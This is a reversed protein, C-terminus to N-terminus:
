TSSKTVFDCDLPKCNGSDLHLSNRASKELNLLVFMDKDVFFTNVNSLRYFQQTKCYIFIYITSCAIFM